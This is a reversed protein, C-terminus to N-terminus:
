IYHYNISAEEEAHLLKTLPMTTRRELLKLTFVIFLEFTRICFSCILFFRVRQRGSVWFALRFFISKSPQGFKAM